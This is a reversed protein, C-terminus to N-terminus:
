RGVQVALHIRKGGKCLPVFAPRQVEGAPQALPELRRRALLWPAPALRRDALLPHLLRWAQLSDLLWHLVDAANLPAPAM